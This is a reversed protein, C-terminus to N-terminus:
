CRGPSRVAGSTTRGCAAAARHRPVLGGFGGARHVLTSADPEHRHEIDAQGIGRYCFLLEHSREHAHRRIHAGPELVQLGISFADYPSNYPNIKNIVYGTSPLPQWFSEGDEPGLAIVIGKAYDSM